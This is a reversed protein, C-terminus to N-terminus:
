YPKLNEESCVKACSTRYFTFKFYGAAKVLGRGATELCRVFEYTMM